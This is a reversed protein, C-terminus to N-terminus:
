RFPEADDVWAKRFSARLLVFDILAAPPYLLLSLLATQTDMRPMFPLPDPVLFIMALGIVVALALAAASTLAARRAPLEERFAFRAIVWSLFCLWVLSVMFSWGVAIIDEM